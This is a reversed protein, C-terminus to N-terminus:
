PVQQSVTQQGARRLTAVAHTRIFAYTLVTMLGTCSTTRGFFRCLTEVYYAIM